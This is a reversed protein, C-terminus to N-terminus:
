MNKWVRLLEGPTFDPELGNQKLMESVFKADFKEDPGMSGKSIDLAFTEMLGVFESHENIWKKIHKIKKIREPDKSKDRIKYEYAAYAKQITKYGYGNADDLIEGTDIDVICFRTEHDDYSPINNWPENEDIIESHHVTTNYKIARYNKSM